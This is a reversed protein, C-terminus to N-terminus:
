LSRAVPSSGAVDLKPIRELTWALRPGIKRNRPNIGSPHARPHGRIGQRGGFCGGPDLQKVAHHLYAPSLHAYRLTMALTEHGMLERITNLDVGAMALRSAFTHRLDHLRFNEIGTERVAPNFVRQRFNTANLPAKGTTSPFVWRSHFRSPLSRLLAGATDNLPV